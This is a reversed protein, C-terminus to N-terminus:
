TYPSVNYTADVALMQRLCIKFAPTNVFFALLWTCLFTPFATPSSMVVCCDPHLPVTM